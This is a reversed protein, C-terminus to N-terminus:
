TQKKANLSWDRKVFAPGCETAQLIHDVKNKVTKRYVCSYARVERRLCSLGMLYTNM